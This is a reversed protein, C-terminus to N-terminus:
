KYAAVCDVIGCYHLEPHVVREEIVRAEQVLPLIHQLSRWHGTNGEAVEIDNLSTGRLYKEINSHLMRGNNLM